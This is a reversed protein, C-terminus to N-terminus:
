ISLWQIKSTTDEEKAEEVNKEDKVEVEASVKTATQISPADSTRIKPFITSGIDFGM